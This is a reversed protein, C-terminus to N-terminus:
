VQCYKFKFTKQSSYLYIYNWLQSQWTATFVCAHSLLCSKTTSYNIPVHLARPETRLVMFFCVFYLFFILSRWRWPPIYYEGTIRLMLLSPFSFLFSSALGCQMAIDQGLSVVCAVRRLVIVFPGWSGAFCFQRWLAPESYWRLSQPPHEWQCPLELPHKLAQLKSVKWAKFKGGM